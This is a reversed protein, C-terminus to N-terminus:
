KGGQKKLFILGLVVFAGLALFSGLVMLAELNPKAMYYEWGRQIPHVLSVPQKVEFLQNVQDGGCTVVVNYDDGRYYPPETIIKESYFSNDAFTYEDTLREVAFGNSDEIVFKCLTDTADYYGAITLTENLRVSHPIAVGSITANIPIILGLLFVLLVLKKIM